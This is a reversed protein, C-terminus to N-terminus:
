LLCRVTSLYGAPEGHKNSIIYSAHLPPTYQMEEHALQASM